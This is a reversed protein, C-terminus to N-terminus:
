LHRNREMSHAAEEELLRKGVIGHETLAKRAAKAAAAHDHAQAEHWDIAGRLARAAALFRDLAGDFDAPPEDPKRVERRIVSVEGGPELTAATVQAVDDVGHLRLQGALEDPTIWEKKMRDPLPRGDRVLPVPEHELVRRVWRSKFGAWDLVLDWFLLSVVAVAGNVVSNARANLAQSVCESVLVLLLVDTLGVSGIQRKPCVRMLVLVAFYVLTGRVFSEFLSVDPIFISGWEPAEFGSM